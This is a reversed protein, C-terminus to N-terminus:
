GYRQMYESGGENKIGETVPCLVQASVGISVHKIGLATDYELHPFPIIYEGRNMVIDWIYADVFNTATGDHQGYCGFSIPTSIDASQSPLRTIEKGDVICSAGSTGSNDMSITHVQRDFLSQSYAYASGHRFRLEGGSLLDCGMSAGTVTDKAGFLTGLLVNDEPAPTWPTQTEGREIKVLKVTPILGTGPKGYIAVSCQNSTPNEIILDVTVSINTYSESLNIDIPQFRYKSLGDAIPVYIVAAGATNSKALMSIQYKGAGFKDFSGITDYVVSCGGDVLQGVVEGASNALLNSSRVGGIGAGLFFKGEVQNVARAAVGTNLRSSESTKFESM